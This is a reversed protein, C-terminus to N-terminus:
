FGLDGAIADLEGGKPKYTEYSKTNWIEIRNFLGLVTVEGEIGAYDKLYQPILIRSQKDLECEAAGGLLFRLRKRNEPDSQALPMLKEEVFINWEEPVLAMICKDFGHTLVLSGIEGNDQKRLRAPLAIRGKEDMTPHYEGMFM